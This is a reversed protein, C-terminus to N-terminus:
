SYSVIEFELGGAVTFYFRRGPEYDGHNTPKYGAKVVRREMADLDSVVLGIHNLGNERQYSGLESEEARVNNGQYLSLYFRDNGVHVTRGGLMSDGSWRVRWDFLHCLEEALDDPEKVTINAHELACSELLPKQM